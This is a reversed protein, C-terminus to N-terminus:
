QNYSLALLERYRREFTKNHWQQLALLHAFEHLMLRSPKDIIIDIKGTDAAISHYKGIRRISRFCLCGLNTDIKHNHAHAQRRFSSGVGREVCGGIFIRYAPFLDSIWKPLKVVDIQRYFKEKEKKAADLESKTLQKLM